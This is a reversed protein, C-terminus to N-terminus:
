GFLKLSVFFKWIQLFRQDSIALFNTPNSKQGLPKQKTGAGVVLSKNQESMLLTTKTKERCWCYPTQRTSIDFIHNDFSIVAPLAVLPHTVKKPSLRKEGQRRHAVRTIAM